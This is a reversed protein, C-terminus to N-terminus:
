RPPLGTEQQQWYRPTWTLDNGGPRPVDLSVPGAEGALLHLRGQDATSSLIAVRGTASAALSLEESEATCRHLLDAAGGALRVVGHGRFLVLWADGVRVAEELRSDAPRDVRETLYDVRGTALEIRALEEVHQGPHRPSTWRGCRVWAARDDVEAVGSLDAEVSRGLQRVSGDVVQHIEIRASSGAPQAQRVVLLRGDPTRVVHEDSLDGKWLKLTGARFSPIELHVLHARGDIRCTFWAGDDEVLLTTSVNVFTPGVLVKGGAGLLQFRSELHGLGEITLESVLLQDGVFGHLTRLGGDARSNKRAREDLVQLTGDGDLRFPEGSWSSWELAEGGLAPALAPFRGVVQPEMRAEPEPPAASRDDEAPGLAVRLEQDVELLSMWGAIAWRRTEAGVLELSGATEDALPVRLWLGAMAHVLFSATRARGELPMEWISSGGSITATVELRDYHVYRQLEARLAADFREADDSSLQLDLRLLQFVGELNPRPRSMSALFADVAKRHRTFRGSELVLEGGDPELDIRLTRRGLEDSLAVLSKLYIALDWDDGMVKANGAIQGDWIAFSLSESNRLDAWPVIRRLAANLKEVEQDTADVDIRVHIAKNGGIELSM